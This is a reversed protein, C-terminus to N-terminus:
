FTITGSGTWKYVRYGGAVTITPSGTTTTAATYTDAYRIIVIGSAGAFGNGDDTGGGGSGTNITGATALVIHELRKIRANIMEYRVVCIDIHADIKAEATM